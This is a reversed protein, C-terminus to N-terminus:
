LGPQGILRVNHLKWHYGSVWFAFSPIILAVIFLKGQLSDTDAFEESLTAKFTRTWFAVCCAAVLAVSGLATGGFMNMRADEIEDKRADVLEQITFEGGAPKVGSEEM